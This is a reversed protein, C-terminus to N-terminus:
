LHLSDREEQTTDLGARLMRVESYVMVVTVPQLIDKRSLFDAPSPFAMVQFGRHACARAFIPRCLGATLKGPIFGDKKTGVLVVAGGSPGEVLHSFDVPRRSRFFAPLSARFEQWRSTFSM